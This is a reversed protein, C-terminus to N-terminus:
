TGMRKPPPQVTIQPASRLQALMVLIDEIYQIHDQMVQFMARTESLTFAVQDVIGLINIAPRQKKVARKKKSTHKKKM